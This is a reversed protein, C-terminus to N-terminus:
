VSRVLTVPCSVSTSLFANLETLNFNWLYLRMDVETSSEVYILKLTRSDLTFLSIEHLGYWACGVM